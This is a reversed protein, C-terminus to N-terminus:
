ESIELKSFQRTFKYMEWSYSFFILIFTMCMSNGIM